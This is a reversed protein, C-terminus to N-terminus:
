SLMGFVLNITTALIVVGFVYSLLAQRLVVARIARSSVATDSVQYTMGLNYSFYFFDQYSPPADSNFDIGGNGAYFIYAYRVAYMLHLTAWSMFVGTLAIAAAAIRTQTGITLLMVIAALGGLTVCVIVVEDVVPRFDERSAHARTQDADMSSLALWGAGVFAIEGAAIGSLVGLPTQTLIGVVMGVALGIIVALTLRVLASARLRDRM